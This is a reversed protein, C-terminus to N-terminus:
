AKSRSFNPLLDLCHIFHLDHVLPNGTRRPPSGVYWMSEITGGEIPQVKDIISLVDSRGETSQQCTSSHLSCSLPKLFDPLSPCVRRPKPCLPQKVESHHQM